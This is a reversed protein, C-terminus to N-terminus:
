VRCQKQFYQQHYEEAKYFESAAVLQTVIPRGLAKQTKEISDRAMKEQDADYFFIVSRYQTGVDPGQRDKTTPDHMAWFAELLTEYSLVAPDYALEVAEAHGTTGSCVQRYTPAKASGGTYGCSAELVGPLKRFEAEVGWFCGAAFCAKKM